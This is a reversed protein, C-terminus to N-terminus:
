EIPPLPESGDGEYITIGVIRDGPRLLRVVGDFNQVVLGIRTAPGAAPIRPALTVTLSGTALDPGIGELTVSGPPLSGDFPEDRTLNDVHDFAPHGPDGARIRAGPVFGGFEVGDYRGAEAARAFAHTALPASDVDLALTFRGPAFGPRQVRVIAARPAAAWAAIEAYPGPDADVITPVPAPNGLAQRARRRLAPAGGDARAEVIARAIPEDLASSAADILAAQALVSTDDTAERDLRELVPLARERPRSRGGARLWSEVARALGTRVRPDESGLVEDPFSSPAIGFAELAEVAAERVEPLDNVSMSRIVDHIAPATFVPIRALARCM